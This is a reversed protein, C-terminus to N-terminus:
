PVILYYWFPMVEIKGSKTEIIEFQNYTLIFAKNSELEHMADTLGRIERNRTKSNDLQYSVQFLQIESTQVCFYVEHNKATKYFWIKSYNSQM